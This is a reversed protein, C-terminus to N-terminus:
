IKLRKECYPKKKQKLWHIFFAPKSKIKAATNKLQLLQASTTLYTRGSNIIKLQQRKRELETLIEALRRLEAIQEELDEM